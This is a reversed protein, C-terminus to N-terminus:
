SGEQLTTLNTQILPLLVQTSSWIIDTIAQSSITAGTIADIQWAETKTGQKVLVVENVLTEGDPGLKVDLAEFNSLFAPDKAIKDGLGPTEKSELVKMGVVCECAPDYGYLIRIVDAYGQGQAEIAVGVLANANLSDYGVYFTFDPTDDESVAALGGDGTPSFPKFYTAGPLVELVAAELQAQKNRAIQPSTLQFTAVLLVSAILGVSGMVAIMKVSSPQEPPPFPFSTKPPDAM